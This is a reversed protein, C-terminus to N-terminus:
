TGGHNVEGNALTGPLRSTYNAGARRAPFCACHREAIPRGRNSMLRQRVIIEPPVVGQPSRRAGTGPPHCEPPFRVAPRDLGCLNPHRGFKWRNPQLGVTPRPITSSSDNFPNIIRGIPGPCSSVPEGTSPRPRQAPRLPSLQPSWKAMPTAGRLKQCFPGSRRRLGNLVLPKHQRVM